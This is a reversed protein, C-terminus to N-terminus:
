PRHADLRVYCDGLYYWRMFGRAGDQTEILLWDGFRDLVVVEEGQQVLGRGPVRDAYQSPELRLPLGIRKPTDVVVRIGVTPPEPREAMALGADPLKTIHGLAIYRKVESTPIAFYVNDAARVGMAVIGVVEGSGNLLPGGSSGPSIPATFQILTDAEDRGDEMLERRLQEPFEGVTRVASVIGESVSNELGQPNGVALVRDGPRLQASDGLRLYPLGKGAIRLVAVDTNRSYGSLGRVRFVGGNSCKVSMKAAGSIVHYCTLVAGSADILTGAGITSNDSQVAVTAPLAREAIQTSSLERTVLLHGSRFGLRMGCLGWAVVFAAVMCLALGFGLRFM